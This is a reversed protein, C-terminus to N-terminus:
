HFLIADTGFIKCRWAPFEFQCILFKKTHGSVTIIKPKFTAFHSQFELASVLKKIHQKRSSDSALYFIQIEQRSTVFKVREGFISIATKKVGDPGDKPIYM